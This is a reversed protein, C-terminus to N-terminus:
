YATPGPFPSGLVCGLLCSTDVSMMQAVLDVCPGRGAGPVNFVPASLCSRPDRREPTCGQMKPPLHVGEHGILRLCERVCVCVCVSERERQSAVQSM